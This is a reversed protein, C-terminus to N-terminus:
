STRQISEYIEYLANAHAQWSFKAAQKQGQEIKQERQRLDTLAAAVDTALGDVDLPDRVFAANGVVEPLSAINSTVVPTGCAMAELPPWGFGEYLSPFLLCDVSSYIQPMERHPIPGLEIISDRLGSGNVMEDWGPAPRGVRVLKVPFNESRILRDLVM